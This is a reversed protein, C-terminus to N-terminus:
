PAQLFHIRQVNELGRPLFPPKDPPYSRFLQALGNDYIQDHVYTFHAWDMQLGGCVITAQSAVVIEQVIWARQFWPKMLLMTFAEWKSSPWECSPSQCLNTETVQQGLQQLANYLTPIFHFALETKATPDGLWVIVRDASAFVDAM